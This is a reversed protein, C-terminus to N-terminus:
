SGAPIRSSYLLSTKLVADVDANSMSSKWTSDHPDSIKTLVDMVEWSVNRDADDLLPRLLRQVHEDNRASITALAHM